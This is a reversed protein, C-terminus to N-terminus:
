FHRGLKSSDVAMEGMKPLRVVEDKTIVLLGGHEHWRSIKVAAFRNRSPRPQSEVVAQAQRVREPSPSDSLFLIEEFNRWGSRRLQKFFPLRVRGEDIEIDVTRRIVNVWQLSAAPLVVAFMFVLVPYLPGPIRGLELGRPLLFFLFLPSSAFCGAMTLSYVRRLGRQSKVKTRAIPM